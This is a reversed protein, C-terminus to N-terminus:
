EARFRLHVDTQVANSYSGGRYAGRQRGDHGAEWWPSTGANCRQETEDLPLVVSCHRGWGHEATGARRPEERGSGRGCGGGNSIWTKPEPCFKIQRMQCYPCRGCGAQFWSVGVRDGPKVSKVGQGVSDIVGVPEHGPVIPLPVPLEGNWVHVDTGCVGTAHLRIRVQGTAPQPDPIERTTFPEKVATMVVAKM